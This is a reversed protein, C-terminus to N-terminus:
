VLYWKECFEQSSLLDQDIMMQHPAGYIFSKGKDWHFNVFSYPHEMAWAVHTDQIKERLCEIFVKKWKATGIRQISVEIFIKASM